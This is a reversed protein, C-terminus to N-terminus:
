AVVKDRSTRDPTGDGANIPVDAVINNAASSLEDVRGTTLTGSAYGKQRKLYSATGVAGVVVGLLFRIMAHRRINLLAPRCFRHGEPEADTRVSRYSHRYRACGDVAPAARGNSPECHEPDEIACGISPFMSRVCARSEVKAARTVRATSQRRSAATASTVSSNDRPANTLGVRRSKKEGASIASTQSSCRTSSATM